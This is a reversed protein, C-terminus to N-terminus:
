MSTIIMHKSPDNRNSAYSIDIKSAPMVFKGDMLASRIIGALAESEPANVVEVSYSKGKGLRPLAVSLFAKRLNNIANRWEDVGDGPAIEPVFGIRKYM